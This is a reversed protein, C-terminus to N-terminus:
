RREHLEERTPYPGSSRFKSKAQGARFREIARQRKSNADSEIPEVTIRVREDERLDLRETPKLVGNSYIAETIRVM